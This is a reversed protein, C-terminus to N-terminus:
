VKGILEVTEKKTLTESVRIGYRDKLRCAFGKALVSDHIRIELPMEAPKDFEIIGGQTIEILEGLSIRKEAVVAELTLKLNLIIDINRM